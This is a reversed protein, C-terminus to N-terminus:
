VIKFSKLVRVDEIVEIEIVSSEKFIKKPNNTKLLTCIDIFRCLCLEFFYEESIKIHSSVKLLNIKIVM